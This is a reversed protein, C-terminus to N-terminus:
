GYDFTNLFDLFNGTKTNSPPYGHSFQQEPDIQDIGRKEDVMLDVGCVPMFPFKEGKRDMEIEDFLSM